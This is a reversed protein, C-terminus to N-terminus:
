LPISLVLTSGKQDVTLLETNQSNMFTFQTARVAAPPFFEYKSTHESTTSPLRQFALCGVCLRAATSVGVWIAFRGGDGLM